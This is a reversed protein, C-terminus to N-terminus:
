NDMMELVSLPMNPNNRAAKRVTELEDLYLVMLAEVPTDKHAAVLERVYGSGRKALEVLTLPMVHPNQAIQVCMRTNNPEEIAMKDLNDGSVCAKAIAVKADDDVKSWDLLVSKYM